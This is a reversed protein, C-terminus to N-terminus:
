VPPRPRNHWSSDPTLHPCLVVGLLHVPLPKALTQSPLVLGAHGDQVQLWGESNGLCSQSPCSGLGEVQTGRGELSGVKGRQAERLTHPHSQTQRLWVGGILPGATDELGSRTFLIHRYDAAVRRHVSMAQTGATHTM